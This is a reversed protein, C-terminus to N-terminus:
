NKVSDSLGGCGEQNRTFQGWIRTNIPNKNVLHSYLVIGRKLIVGMFNMLIKYKTTNRVKISSEEQEKM